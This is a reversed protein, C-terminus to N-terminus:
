GATEAARRGAAPVATGTEARDAPMDDVVIGVSVLLASALVATGARM